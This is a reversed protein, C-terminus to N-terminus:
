RSTTTVLLANSLSASFPRLATQWFLRPCFYRLANEFLTFVYVLVTFPCDNKLESVTLLLVNLRM